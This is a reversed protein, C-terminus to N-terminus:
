GGTASMHRSLAPLAGSRDIVFDHGRPKGRIARDITHMLDADDQSRRMVARLDVADEQGLCTHLIGSATIRVRNCDECFNHTLPTIFGIVGGTEAVRVYRAPGGTRLPLDSLSWRSEILERLRDLPFYQDVRDVGVDGLPMTEIFTLTMERDHAFHILGDIEADTSGRLAVANIKVALGASRAADIGELVNALAGGRTLARYRDPDLTDLSVNVRRVGYSALERAFNALRTGNTTLTLERLRGAGLETGLAAFLKMVDKRVLPEGGTIRLKTVGRRIFALALRNLEELSLLDRRPMFAMHESMCYVCRLDCRDTVSLRLYRVYRGFLDILGCSGGQLGLYSSAQGEDSLM